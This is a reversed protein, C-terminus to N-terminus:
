TNNFRFYVNVYRRQIRHFCSHHFKGGNSNESTVVRNSYLHFKCLEPKLASPSNM